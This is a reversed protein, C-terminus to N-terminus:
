ITHQAHSDNIYYLGLSPQDLSGAFTITVPSSTLDSGFIHLRKGTHEYTLAASNQTISAISISSDAFLEAFPAPSKQILQIQEVCTYTKAPINPMFFLIYSSIALDVGGRNGDWPGRSFLSSCFQLGCLDLIDSFSPLFPHLYLLAAM